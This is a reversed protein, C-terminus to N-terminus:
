EGEATPESSAEEAEAGEELEEAELAAEAEAEEATLGRPALVAVLVREPPLMPEAGGFDIEEVHIADHMELESVDITILDPISEPLGIVRVTSFSVNLVGGNKVGIPDGVYKIPVHLKLPHGTQPCYFDVHVPEDTVPDLDISKVFVNMTKEEGQDHIIMDIRSSRTIKSFLALLARRDIALSTSEIGPGYVVAPVQGATRTL